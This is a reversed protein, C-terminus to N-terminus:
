IYTWTQVYVPSAGTKGTVITIDPFCERSFLEVLGSFFGLIMDSTLRSSHNHKDEYSIGTDMEEPSGERDYGISGSQRYRGGPYIGDSM